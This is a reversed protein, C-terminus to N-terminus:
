LDALIFSPKVPKHARRKVPRQPRGNASHPFYSSRRSRTERRDERKQRSTTLSFDLGSLQRDCTLNM